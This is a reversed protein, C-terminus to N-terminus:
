RRKRFRITSAGVTLASESFTRQRHDARNKLPRKPGVCLPSHEDDIRVIEDIELGIDALTTRIDEHGLIRQLDTLMGGSRLYLTAIRGIRLNWGSLV